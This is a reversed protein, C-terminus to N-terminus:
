PHLAFTLRFLDEGAGAANRGWGYGTDPSLVSLFSRDQPQLLEDSIEGCSRASENQLANMRDFNGGLAFCAVAQKGFTKKPFWAHM